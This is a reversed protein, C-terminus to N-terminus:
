SAPAIVERVYEISQEFGTVEALGPVLVPQFTMTFNNGLNVTNGIVQGSFNNTNNMNITCPSYFSVHVLSNFNTQNGVTISKSSAGGPCSGPPQTSIFYLNRTSGVGDWNSQNSLTVGYSTVIALNGNLSVTANNSNSYTCGAAPHIWVVKNGTIGAQVYTRADTCATASTFEVIQYGGAVWQAQQTADFSIYPFPVTPPQPSPTNPNSNGGVTVGTITGAATANRTISGSGSITGTSSITDGTVSASNSFTVNGNAWLDGFVTVTNSISATGNPVFVNGRVEPTNSIVLNGNRVFIDGNNGNNGYIDFNNSFSTSANTLVAQQYGGYIPTIVASTQMARPTQGATRGVADITVSSPFSTDTFPCSMVTGTSDYFTPTVTFEATAPQADVNGTAATCTISDVQTTSLYNFYYNLGAEAASVSNLRRRNYGSSESNHVSQAVILVGFLLVVFTVMLAMVMAVGREERFRIFM